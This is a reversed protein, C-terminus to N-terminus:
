KEPKRETRGNKVAENKIDAFRCFEEQCGNCNSKSKRKNFLCYECKLDEVFYEFRNHIRTHQSM